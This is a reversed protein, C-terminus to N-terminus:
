SPVVSDGEKELGFLGKGCWEKGGQVSRSFWVCATEPGEGDVDRRCVGECGGCDAECRGDAVRVDVELRAFDTEVQELRRPCGCVRDRRGHRTYM